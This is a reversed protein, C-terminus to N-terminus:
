SDSSSSSENSHSSSSSGRTSRKFKSVEVFELDGSFVPVGDLAKFKNGKTKSIGLVSVVPKEWVM